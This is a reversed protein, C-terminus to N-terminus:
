NRNILSWLWREIKIEMQGKEERAQGDVRFSAPGAFTGLGAVESGM